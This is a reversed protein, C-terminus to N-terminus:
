SNRLKKSLEQTIIKHNIKGKSEKMVKGIFYSL